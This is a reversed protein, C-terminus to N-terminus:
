MKTRLMQRYCERSGRERSLSTSLSLESNQARKTARRVSLSLSLATTCGSLDVFVYPTLCFIQVVSDALRLCFFYLKQSVFHFASRTSLLAFSLLMGPLDAAPVMLALCSLTAESEYDVWREMEETSVTGNEKLLLFSLCVSSSPSGDLAITFSWRCVSLHSYSCWGM